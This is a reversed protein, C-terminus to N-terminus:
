EEAENIREEKNSYKRQEEKKMNNFQIKVECIFNILKFTVKWKFNVLM